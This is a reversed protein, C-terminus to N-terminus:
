HSHRRGHCHQRHPAAPRPDTALSATIGGGPAIEVSDLWVRAFPYGHDDYWDLLKGSLNSIQRPDLPSGTYRLPSIAAATLLPAPIDGLSLRAWKYELGTYIFAQYATGSVALSDLSAALYGRRQLGPIAERLWSIVAQADPFTTPAALGPIPLSTDGDPAPSACRTAKRVQPRPGVQRCCKCCGSLWFFRADIEVPTFIVKGREKGKKRTEGHGADIDVNGKAALGAGIAIKM